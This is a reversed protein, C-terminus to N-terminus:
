WSTKPWAITRNALASGRTTPMVARSASRCRAEGLERGLHRALEEVDPDGLLVGDEEGGPM